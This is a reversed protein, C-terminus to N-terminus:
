ERVSEPAPGNVLCGIQMRWRGLSLAAALSSGFACRGRTGVQETATGMLFASGDRSRRM